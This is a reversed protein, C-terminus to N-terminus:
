AESGEVVLQVLTAPCVGFVQTSLGRPVEQKGLHPPKDHVGAWRGTGLNSLCTLSCGLHPSLKYIRRHGAPPAVGPLDQPRQALHQPRHALQQSHSALPPPTVSEDFRCHAQISRGEKPLKELM